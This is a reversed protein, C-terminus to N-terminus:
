PLSRAIHPREGPAYTTEISPRKKLIITPCISQYTFTSVLRPQTLFSQNHCLGVKHKQPLLYVTYKPPNAMFPEAQTRVVRFQHIRRPRQPHRRHRVMFLQQRIHAPSLHRRYQHGTPSQGFQHPHTRRGGTSPFVPCWTGDHPRATASLRQRSVM